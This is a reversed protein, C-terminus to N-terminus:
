RGRGRPRRLRAPPRRPRAVNDGCAGRTPGASSFRGRGAHPLTALSRSTVAREPLTAGRPVRTRRARGGDRAAGRVPDRTSHKIVTRRGNKKELPDARVTVFADCTDRGAAPLLEFGSEVTVHLNETAEARPPTRPEPSRARM